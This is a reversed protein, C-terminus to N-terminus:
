LVRGHRAWFIALIKSGTQSHPSTFRHSSSQSSTSRNKIAKTVRSEAPPVGYRDGMRKLFMTEYGGYHILVPDTINALLGIFENWIKREDEVSDAWLGYQVAPDRDGVRVGILYYFDRDPL